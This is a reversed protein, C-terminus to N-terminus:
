ILKPLVIESSVAQSSKVVSTVDLHQVPSGITAMPRAEEPAALYPHLRDLQRVKGEAGWRLYCYRANQLYTKAFAEYGRAAYFRAAVELALGENQVFGHEHAARIAEEYLRMADLDRGELRAIEASVLADKDGFTHPYREAWERLQAQHATLFDRWKNREDDAATEYLTAVTLAAYYFYDLLQFNATAASLLPKEKEAAALAEAYDGSLFRAKLKLIWYICITLVMRERTLQAEFAVEDFQGDNFTSFTATRAQMTAIFRKQSVIIDAIDGYKAERTFDLAMESARWVADLPDNRLLPVTITQYTAYCASTLDGTEIAARFTMRTFDIVTGIPQTWFAVKGMANYVQAQYAIFHHKEVLDCALKVFRYGEDYRHFVPGLIFVGLLAYGLTSAGSVGHKMAVKVMRCTLWCFLHFDTLYAPLTLISLVRMAAQLKPDTMLPMEILSETPRGNLTQWVTEYEAQVQEPTPHAPIDIGFLRLCTLASAVAQPNESKM